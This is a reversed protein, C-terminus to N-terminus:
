EWTNFHAFERYYKMAAFDYALAACEEISFVGLHIRKGAYGIMARWKKLSKVWYVGKYKSTGKGYIKKNSCNQQNNCIRLNQRKNDLGNGDIHDSKLKNGFGLGLILRHMRITQSKKGKIQKTNAYAYWTHRHFVACWKYQKVLEYDEDDVLAVKGQTLKIEKMNNVM